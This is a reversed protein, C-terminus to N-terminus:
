RTRSALHMSALWIGTELSGEGMRADGGSVVGSSKARQLASRRCFQPLSPLLGSSRRAPSTIPERSPSHRAAIDLPCGCTAM